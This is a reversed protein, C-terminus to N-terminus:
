LKSASLLSITPCFLRIHVQKNGDVNLLSNFTACDLSYELQFSEVWQSYDGRGKTQIAFVSSMNM